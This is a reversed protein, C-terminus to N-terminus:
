LPLKVRSTTERAVTADSELAPGPTRRVVIRAVYFGWAWGAFHQSTGAGRRVSAGAERDRRLFGSAPTQSLSEAGGDLLPSAGRPFHRRRDPSYKVANGRPEHAAARREVSRGRPLSSSPAEVTVYPAGGRLTADVLAFSTAFSPRWDYSVRELGSRAGGGCPSFFFFGVSIREGLGNM